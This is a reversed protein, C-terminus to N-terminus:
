KKPDDFIEWKKIKHNFIWLIISVNMEDMLEETTIDTDELDINNGKFTVNKAKLTEKIRL